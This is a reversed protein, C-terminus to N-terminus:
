LKELLKELSIFKNLLNELKLKIASHNDFSQLITKEKCVQISNYKVLKKIGDLTYGSDSLTHIKFFEEVSKESFYRRGNRKICPIHTFISLWFRITHTKVYVGQKALLAEVQGISLHFLSSDITNSHLQTM